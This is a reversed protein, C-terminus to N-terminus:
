YTCVVEGGPRANDQLEKLMSTPSNENKEQNGETDTETVTSDPEVIEVHPRLKCDKIACGTLFILTSILVIVKM